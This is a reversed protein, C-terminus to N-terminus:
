RLPFYCIDTDAHANSVVLVFVSHLVTRYVEGRYAANAHFAHATVPSQPDEEEEPHEGITARLRGIM